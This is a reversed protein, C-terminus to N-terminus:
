WKVIYMCIRHSLKVLCNHHFQKSDINPQEFVIFVKYM